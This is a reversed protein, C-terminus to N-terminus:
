QAGRQSGPGGRGTRARITPAGDAHLWDGYVVPNGGAVPFLEAHEMGIRTIEDAIWRAARLSDPRHEPLTSISPIRLFELYSELREERHADLFAEVGTDTQITM